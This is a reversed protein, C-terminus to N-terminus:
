HCGSPRQACCRKNTPWTARGPHPLIRWVLPLSRRRFGLSVVLVNQTDTLVVWHRYCHACDYPAREKQWQVAEVSSPLEFPM